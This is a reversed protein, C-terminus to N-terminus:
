VVNDVTHHQTNWKQGISAANEFTKHVVVLKLGSMAPSDVCAGPDVLGNSSCDPVM